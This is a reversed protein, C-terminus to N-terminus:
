NFMVDYIAVYDFYQNEEEPAMVCKYYTFGNVSGDWFLVTSNLQILM